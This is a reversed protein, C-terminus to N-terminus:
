MLYETLPSIGYRLYRDLGAERSRVTAFFLEGLIKTVVRATGINGGLHKSADHLETNASENAVLM